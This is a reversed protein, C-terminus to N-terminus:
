FAECLEIEMRYGNDLKIDFAKGYSDIDYKNDGYWQSYCYAICYSKTYHNYFIIGCQNEKIIKVKDGVKLYNRNRDQIGLITGLRGKQTGNVRYSSSKRKYINRRNM